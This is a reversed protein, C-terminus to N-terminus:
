FGEVKKPFVVINNPQGFHSGSVQLTNEVGDECIKIGYHYIEYEEDDPVNFLDTLSSPLDFTVFSKYDSNVVIEDGVSERKKNRVAFYVQYDKDTKLGNVVEGSDGQHIFITGFSDVKLM